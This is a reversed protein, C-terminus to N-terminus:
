GPLVGHHRSRRQTAVRRRRGADLVGAVIRSPHRYARANRHPRIAVPAARAHHSELIHVEAFERNRKWDSAGSVHTPNPRRERRGEIVLIGAEVRANDPQYWQLEQNRVFGNEYSWNAPDPKGERDFEDAWVLTYGPYSQAPLRAGSAAQDGSTGGAGSVLTVLALGTLFRAWAGCNLMRRSM